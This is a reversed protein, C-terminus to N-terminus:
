ESPHTALVYLLLYSSPTLRRARFPGSSHMSLRSSVIRQVRQDQGPQSQPPAVVDATWDTREGKGQFDLQDLNCHFFVSFLLNPHGSFRGDRGIGEGRVEPDGTEQYAEEDVRRNGQVRGVKRTVDKLRSCHDTVCGTTPLRDFGRPYKDENRMSKFRRILPANQISDRGSLIIISNTM